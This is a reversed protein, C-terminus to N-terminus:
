QRQFNALSWASAALGAVAAWLRKRPSPIDRFWLFRRPTDIATLQARSVVTRGAVLSVVSDHHELENGGRRQANLDGAVRAYIQREDTMATLLQSRIGLATLLVTVVFLATNLRTRRYVYPIMAALSLFVVPVIRLWFRAFLDPGGDWMSYKPMLYLQPLLFLIVFWAVPDRHRILVALAIPLLILLPFFYLPSKLPSLFTGALGVLWSGRFNMVGTLDHYASTLPSGFFYANFGALAATGLVFVVMFATIVGRSNTTPRASRWQSQLFWGVFAPIASAFFPRVAIGFTLVAALAAATVCATPGSLSRDADLWLCLDIAALIILMEGVVNYPISSYMWVPSAFAAGFIILTKWAAGPLGLVQCAGVILLVGLVAFALWNLCWLTMDAPQTLHAAAKLSRAIVYLPLAM